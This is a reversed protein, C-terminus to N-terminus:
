SSQESLDIPQADRSGGVAGGDAEGVSGTTEASRTPTASAPILFAAVIQAAIVVVFGLPYAIAKFTLARVDGFTKRIASYLIRGGDLPPIPVLNLVAILFNLHAWTASGAWIDTPILAYIVALALNAAPGAFAVVAGQRPSMRDEADGAVPMCYGGFLFLSLKWATGDRSTWLRIGPGFGVSVTKVSWGYHRFAWYHGAEHLWIAVLLSALGLLFGTM